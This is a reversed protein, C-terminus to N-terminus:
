VITVTIRSVDFVALEDFAIAINDSLTPAAAIGVTMASISHGPISNVPEYIRSFILEEGIEQNAIGWDVIANKIQDVGDSPWGVRIELSIDIYINVATPRAFKIENSHGYSDVATGVEDGLMTVGLSKKLLITDWIDQDAGGNVIVMISHASMGNVDVADTINEYIAVQTVDPLNAVAGYISGRSTQGPTGTSKARRIRLQEDTEEYRGVIAAADNTVSQWGYTPSGIVTLTDIAASYPGMLESLVDVDVYGGAGIIAEAQTIFVVGSSEHKVLSGAPITTGVTGTCRVTAQSHTGVIRTIKNLQVLRSLAAGTASQPNFSHYVAEALMTVESVANAFISLTLYDLDDPNLSIDAGFIDNMAAVHQALIDDLRTRDFGEATLATM